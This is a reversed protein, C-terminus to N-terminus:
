APADALPAVCSMLPSGEAARGDGGGGRGVGAVGVRAAGVLEDGLHAPVDPRASVALTEHAPGASVVQPAQPRRHHADREVAAVQQAAPRLHALRVEGPAPDRRARAPELDGCQSNTRGWPCSRAGTAPSPAGRCRRGRPPSRASARRGCCRTPEPRTRCRARSFPGAGPDEVTVTKALNRPQDVVDPAACTPSTTRSSSPMPIITLLPTFGGGDGAGKLVHAAMTIAAREDDVM